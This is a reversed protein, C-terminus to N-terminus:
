PNRILHSASGLETCSTSIFPNKLQNHIIPTSIGFSWDSSTYLNLDGILALAPDNSGASKETETNQYIKRYSRRKV